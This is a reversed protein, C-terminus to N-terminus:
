RRERKKQMVSFDAPPGSKPRDAPNVPQADNSKIEQSLGSM